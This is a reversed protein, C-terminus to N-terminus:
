FCNSVKKRLSVTLLTIHLLPNTYMYTESARLLRLVRIQTPKIFEKRSYHWKGVKTYVSYQECTIHCVTLPCFKPPQSTHSYSPNRLVLLATGEQSSFLNPPALPLWGSSFPGSWMFLHWLGRTYLQRHRITQLNM